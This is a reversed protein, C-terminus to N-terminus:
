QPLHDQLAAFKLDQRLITNLWSLVPLILIGNIHSIVFM